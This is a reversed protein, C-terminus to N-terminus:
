IVPSGMYSKRNHNGQLKVFYLGEFDSHGQSQGVLDNLTLHSPATPSEMHSKRNTDLLLM